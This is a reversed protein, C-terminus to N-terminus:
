DRHVNFVAHIKENTQYSLENNLSYQGFPNDYAVFFDLFENPETDLMDRRFDLDVYEFKFERPNEQNEIEKIVSFLIDLLIHGYGQRREEKQCIHIMPISVNSKDSHFSADIFGIPFKEREHYISIDILYYSYRYQWKVNYYVNNGFRDPKSYLQQKLDKETQM